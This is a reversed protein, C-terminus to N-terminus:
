LYLGRSLCGSGWLPRSPVNTVFVLENNQVRRPQQYLNQHRLRSSSPPSVLQHCCLNECCKGRWLTSPTMILCSEHTSKLAARSVYECVWYMHCSRSWPHWPNTSVHWYSGTKNADWSIDNTDCYQWTHCWCLAQAESASTLKGPNWREGMEDDPDHLSWDGPWPSRSAWDMFLSWLEEILGWEGHILFTTLSIQINRSYWPKTPKGFKWPSSCQKSTETLNIAQTLIFSEGPGHSNERHPAVHWFCDFYDPVSPM